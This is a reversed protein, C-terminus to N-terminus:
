IVKLGSIVVNAKKILEKISDLLSAQVVPRDLDYDQVQYIAGISVSGQESELVLLLKMSGGRKKTVDLLDAVDKMFLAAGFSQDLKYCQVDEIVGYPEDMGM